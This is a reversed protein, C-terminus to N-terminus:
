LTNPEMQHHENSSKRTTRMLFSRSCDRKPTRPLLRLFQLLHMDMYTLWKLRPRSGIKFTMRFFVFHISGCTDSTSSWCCIRKWDFIHMNTNLMNRGFTVFSKSFCPVRQATNVEQSSRKIAQGNLPILQSLTWGGAHKASKMLISLASALIRQM